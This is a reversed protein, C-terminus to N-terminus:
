AVGMGGRGLFKIQEYRDGLDILADISELALGPGDNQNPVVATAVEAYAELYARVKAFLEPDGASAEKLYALRGEVPKDLAEHFLTTTRARREASTM